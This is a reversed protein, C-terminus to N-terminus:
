EGDEFESLLYILPALWPILIIARVKVREDRFDPQCYGSM